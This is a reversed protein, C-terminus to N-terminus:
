AGLCRGVRRLISVSVWLAAGAGEGMLGGVEAVRGFEEGGLRGSNRRQARVEYQSIPSGSIWMISDVVIQLFAEGKRTVLFITCFLSSFISVYIQLKTNGNPENNMEYTLLSQESSDIVCLEQLQQKGAGM